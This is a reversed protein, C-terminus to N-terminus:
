IQDKWRGEAQRLCDLSEAVPMAHGLVREYAQIAQDARDTATTTVDDTGTTYSITSSGDRSAIDIGGWSGHNAGFPVVHVSINPRQALEVLHGVQSAMIEASGMMRDLVTADIIVVVVARDLITQRAMRAAVLEELRAPTFPLASLVERAYSETQVVGPIILPGWCRILTAEAEARKYPMHWEPTGSRARAALEKLKDISARTHKSWSELVADSPMAATPNEARSIVPRSVKMRSALAGQSKCGADIRAQRLLDALQERPPSPPTSM